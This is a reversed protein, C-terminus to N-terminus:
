ETISINQNKLDNKVPNLRNKLKMKNQEHLDDIIPFDNVARSVSDSILNGRM